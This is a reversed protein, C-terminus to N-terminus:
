ETEQEKEEIYASILEGPYGKQYLGSRVKQHLERGKAKREYRRWLKDGQMRLAAMEDEEEKETEIEGMVELVIDSPYGKQHLNLRIKSAAEHSSVRSQKRLQKEAITQANELQLEHPYQKLSFAIDEESLGKGKLENAILQPGKLNLNAATRTYSEGYIRDNVYNQDVLRTLAREIADPSIEEEHLKKRVEKESRLSYSLYNVATTYAMYDYNEKEIEASREKTLTMGKHLGVKILVAESIPFSYEGDIFVNFRDKRKKQVTIKTVVPLKEVQEETHDM